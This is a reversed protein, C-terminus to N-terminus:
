HKRSYTGMLHGQEIIHGEMAKKLEAVKSGPELFLEADLGYVTFFYRHKGFPPCPGGYYTKKFSNKGTVGAEDLAGTDIKHTSPPINWVTAHIFTGLPADPDEVIVALSQVKASINRIELPPSLDEGDCTYMRPIEAGNDFAESVVQITETAAKQTPAGQGPQNWENMGCGGMLIVALGIPLFREVRTKM